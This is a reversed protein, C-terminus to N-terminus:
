FHRFATRHLSTCNSFSVKIYQWISVFSDGVTLFPWWRAAIQKQLQSKIVEIVFASLVKFFAEGSGHNIIIGKNVFVHKFM